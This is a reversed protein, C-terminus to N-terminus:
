DLTTMGMNLGYCETNPLWAFTDSDADYKYEYFRVDRFKAIGSEGVSEGSSVIYAHGSKARFTRECDGLGSGVVCNAYLELTQHVGTAPLTPDNAPSGLDHWGSEKPNWVLNMTDYHNDDNPSGIDPELISWQAAYVSYTGGVYQVGDDVVIPTCDSGSNNGAGDNGNPTNGTGGQNASGTGNGSGGETDGDGNNDSDDTAMECLAATCMTFALASAMATQAIRRSLM